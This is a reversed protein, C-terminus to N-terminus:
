LTPRLAVPIHSLTNRGSYVASCVQCRCAETPLDHGPGVHRHRRAGPGAVHRKVLIHPSRHDVDCRWVTRSSRDGILVHITRVLLTPVHDRGLVAHTARKVLSAAASPTWPTAGQHARPDGPFHLTPWRHRDALRGNPTCKRVEHDFGRTQEASQLRVPSPGAM